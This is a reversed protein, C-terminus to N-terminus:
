ARDGVKIQYAAVVDTWTQTVGIADGGQAVSIGGVQYSSVGRRVSHTLKAVDLVAAQIDVPIADDPYGAVYTISVNSFGVPFLANDRRRVVGSSSTQVDALSADIACIVTEPRVNMAPLRISRLGNGDLTLTTTEESVYHRVEGRFRNSAEVLALLLLPDDAAVGLALSLDDAKALPTGQMM